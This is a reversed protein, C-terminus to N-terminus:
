PVYARRSHELTIGPVTFFIFNLDTTYSVGIEVFNQGGATRGTTIAPTAMKAPDIGFRSAMLANRIEQQSRPPWLTAVRAGEGMANQLGANAFFIIGFQITGFILLVVIPIVM